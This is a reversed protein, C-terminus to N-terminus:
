VFQSLLLRSMTSIRCAAAPRHRRANPLPMPKQWNDYASHATICLSHALALGRIGTTGLLKM